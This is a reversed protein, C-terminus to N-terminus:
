KAVRGRRSGRSFMSRQRQQPEKKQIQLESLQKEHSDLRQQQQQQNAALEAAVSAVAAKAAATVEAVAEKVAGATSVM